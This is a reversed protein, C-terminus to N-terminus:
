LRIMKLIRRRLPSRRWSITFRDVTCWSKCFRGAILLLRSLNVYFCVANMFCMNGTNVLGRPELFPAQVASSIHFDKLAEELSAYAGNSRTPSKSVAAVAVPKADKRLLDAWAKPAAPAAPKEAPKEVPKEVETEVPKEVSKEAEVEKDGSKVVEDVKVDEAAGKKVVEVKPVEVEKVEKEKEVKKPSIHPVAVPAIPVAPAPKPASAATVSPPRTSSPTTPVTTDAESPPRSTPPTLEDSVPTPIPTKPAPKVKTEFLPLAPEIRRKRRQRAPFPGPASYWPLQPINAPKVM